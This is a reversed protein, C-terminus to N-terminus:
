VFVKKPKKKKSHVIQIPTKKKKKTLGLGIRRERLSVSAEQKNERRFGHTPKRGSRRTRLQSWTTLPAQLLLMSRRTRNTSGHVNQTVCSVSDWLAFARQLDGHFDTAHPFWENAGKTKVAERSAEATPESQTSLEDLYSKVAIGLACDVDNLFPLSCIDNTYSFTFVIVITV